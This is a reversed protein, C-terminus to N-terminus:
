PIHRALMIRRGGGGSLVHGAGRRLAWLMDRGDRYRRVTRGRRERLGLWGGVLLRGDMWRDVLLRGRM